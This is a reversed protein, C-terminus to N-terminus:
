SRKLELSNASVGFRKEYDTGHFQSLRLVINLSRRAM